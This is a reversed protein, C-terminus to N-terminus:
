ESGLPAPAAQDSPAREDTYDHVVRGFGLTFDCRWLYGPGMELVPLRYVPAQANPRLEVTAPGKWCEHVKVELLDRATIQRIGDQGTVSPVVKLNFNTLFALDANMEAFSSSITKYPLTATIVDIGNRRVRGVVLDGRFRISPRGFKKPQGYVERGMAIAGDHDLFLYPSFAGREGTPPYRVPVQVASENYTGFADTDNMQYIHVIVRDGTAELPAPLLAQIAGPDTRYSVTLILVDRFRFPFEPFLPADAPTSFTTSPDLRTVSM